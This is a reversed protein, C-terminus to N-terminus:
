YFVRQENGNEKNIYYTGADKVTVHEFAQEKTIKRQECYKDVYDRFENNRKYLDMM